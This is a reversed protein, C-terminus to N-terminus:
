AIDLKHPAGPREEVYRPVAYGPLLKKLESILRLGIERPVEFHAAGAVLDLQHLYYPLVNMELLRESLAKLAATSDNVGRLLVAQNLLMIGRQSLKALAAAVSADLEQAHNAHIVVISTLPHDTLLEIFEETVRQPIVIPLRTHIRLRRVHPIATLQEVLAALHGDPLTLPDGGSLIVESISADEEIVRLAPLWDHLAKPAESYPFHRRFCYRCHIACAGTTILLARGAYKQLMGPARIAAQDGVPDATFQPAQSLEAALPLVQRLLPDEPDGPRMRAVFERPAFLPFSKAAQRAPEIWELPLALQECLQRPDRIADRLSQQWTRVSPLPIEPPLSPAAPMECVSCIVFLLFTCAVNYKFRGFRVGCSVVGM